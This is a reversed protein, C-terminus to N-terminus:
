EPLPMLRACASGFHVRRCGAVDNVRAKTEGVAAVGPTQARGDRWSSEHLANAQQRSMRTGAGRREM